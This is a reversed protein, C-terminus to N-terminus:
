LQGNALKIELDPNDANSGNVNQETFTEEQCKVSMCLVCRSHRSEPTSRVNAQGCCVVCARLALYRVQASGVCFRVGAPEGLRCWKEGFPAGFLRPTGSIRGGYRHTQRHTVLRGM